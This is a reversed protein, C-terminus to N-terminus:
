LIGGSVWSIASGRPPPPRFTPLNAGDFLSEYTVPLTPHQAFLDDFRKYRAATKRMAAIAKAPDVRVWVAAVPERAELLTRKQMLLQSVHVKLLNQRALHIVRIEPHSLLYRLVFPRALHNYMVKFCRVPADNRRYFQELRFHPLWAGTRAIRVFKILYRVRGRAPAIAVDPQGNLIEDACHIDPHSDLCEVLFGSGTRQTTLVIARVPGRREDRV